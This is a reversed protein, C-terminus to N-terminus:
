VLYGFDIDSLNKGYKGYHLKVAESLDQNTLGRNESAALYAANTVVERIGGESLEFQKAFFNLDIVEDCCASDSLINTWLQLRVKADPFAIHIAFQIRRKYVDDIHNIHDAALVTIGKYKELKQLLYGKKVVAASGHSNKIESSKGFLLDADEIFLLANVRELERFFLDIDRRIEETDSDLMFPLNLRYVPLALEKALMLAAITKGSGAPGYFLVLIGRKAAEKQCLGWKEEVINRYKMQNCIIQMQREQKEGVILDNCLFQSDILTAYSGLCDNQNQIVARCIDENRIKERGEKKALLQATDLAARIEKPTLVYKSGNVDHDVNEELLYNEGYVQFLMTREEATLDPLELCVKDKGYDSLQERKEEALLFFCSVKEELYALIEKRCDRRDLGSEDSQILDCGTLCLFATELVSEVYAAEMVLKANEWREYLVKSLDIFLIRIQRSVAMHKILFHKGIGESGYLMIMCNEKKDSIHAGDFLRCLEELKEKRIVMPSLEDMWTFYKAHGRLNGEMCRHGLLFGFVSQRLQYSDALRVNEKTLLLMEINGSESVFVAEEEESVEKMLRALSLCLGRTPHHQHIPYQLNYYIREYKRQYFPAVGMLLALRELASLHFRDCVALFPLFEGKKEREAIKDAMHWLSGAVSATLKEESMPLKFAADLLKDLFLLMDEMHEKPTYANGKVLKKKWIM